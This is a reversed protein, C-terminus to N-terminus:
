AAESAMANDDELVPADKDEAGDAAEEAAAEAEAAVEAEPTAEGGGEGQAKQQKRKASAERAAVTIDEGFLRLSLASCRRTHACSACKQHTFLYFAHPLSPRPHAPSPHPLFPVPSSRM